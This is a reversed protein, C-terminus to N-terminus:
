RSGDDGTTLKFDFPAMTVFGDWLTEESGALRVAMKVTISVHYTGTKSIGRPNPTAYEDTFVEALDTDDLLSNSQEMKTWRNPFRYHIERDAICALREGHPGIVAIDTLVGDSGEMRYELPKQPQRSKATLYLPVPAGIAYSELKTHATLDIPCGNATRGTPMSVVYANNFGDLERIAFRIISFGREKTYTVNPHEALFRSADDTPPLVIYYNATNRKGFSRMEFSTRYFLFLDTTKSLDDLLRVVSDPLRFDILNRSTFFRVSCHRDISMSLLTEANTSVFYSNQGDGETTKRPLSFVADSTKINPRLKKDFSIVFGNDRALCQIGIGNVLIDAVASLSCFLVFLLMRKGM